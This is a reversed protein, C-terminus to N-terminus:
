RGQRGRDPGAAKGPATADPKRPPAQGTDAAFSLHASALGALALAVLAPRMMTGLNDPGLRDLHGDDPSRTPSACRGAARLRNKWHRVSGFQWNDYNGCTDASTTATLLCIRESALSSVLGHPSILEVRLRRQLPADCQLLVEVFEIKSVGCGSADFSDTAAAEHRGRREAAPLDPHVPVVEDGPQRRRRHDLDRALAVAAAADVAGFGYEPNFNLGYNATWGLNSPDNKRATMALILRVDRWTLDPREKLMLAVIGSVTPTSASTGSFTRAIAGQPM